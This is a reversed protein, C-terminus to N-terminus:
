AQFQEDTIALLMDPGAQLARLHATALPLFQEAYFRATIIKAELFSREPGSVDTALHRHAILAARALQWGGTVTGMLMLMHWAAAGPTAPHDAHHEVLWQGAKELAQRGEQLNSSIAKLETVGQLEAECARLEALLEQLSEGGDRLIKRGVLDNAQIGTTGEYITTIRADRLYQAAGTEEVYGMGGHVQLGISTLVQGMETSWGKVVPTMLEVRSQHSARVGADPHRHALDLDAATVYAISRMAEIYAKMTLLMRRVDAHRIIPARGTEGAVHGQVRERAYALAQQYAREAVAVGELGVGLRAHNMMTFMAALGNNAEGVLYGVAKDFAMVCTPSGHIGLKHEVSIPRVGNREGPEGAADPIFKPVLFLSIGRVGPPADPLRALVLHVINATMDHDGWTIFIKQGSVQYHDGAPVAQTRLAALDTGAQPETLNMTGTWEGATMRPLYIRQLEESGHAEIARAAGETLLPCLSWALNASYWMEDIGVGFLFPLDQGGFEEAATLRSWGGAQYEGYIAKFEDPVVVGGNEVRTGKRDGIQNTPAIVRTALEAAQELIAEAMDPTADGGGPLATLRSLGALENIVFLMERIPARYEAM